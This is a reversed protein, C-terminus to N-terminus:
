ETGGSGQQAPRAALPNGPRAERRQAAQGVAQRGDPRRCRPRGHHDGLKGQHDHRDAQRGRAHPAPRHPLRARLRAPEHQGGGVLRVIRDSDPDRNVFVVSRPYNVFAVSNLARNLPSLDEKKNMHLSFIVALRHRRALRHLPRLLRERVIADDSAKVGELFSTIPEIVLATWDDFRALTAEITPLMDIVAGAIVEEDDEAHTLTGILDLDAGAVSFRHRLAGARDEHCLWLVRGPEAAAAQEGDFCPLPRGATTGAMLDALM